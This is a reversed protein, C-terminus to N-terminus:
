GPGASLLLANFLLRFTGRTQGRHQPPFGFLVVRGAGREITVVAAKGRLKEPGLLWGSELVEADAYRAAVRVDANMELLDFAHSRDFYASFEAPMGDCLPTGSGVVRVISGPGYFESSKLGKLADVVPLSFAEIAFATSGELCVLSGGAEVFARIADVGDRGLGGV